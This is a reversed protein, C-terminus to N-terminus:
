THSWSPMSSIGARAFVGQWADVMMNLRAVITHWLPGCAHACVLAHTGVAAAACGCVCAIDRDQGPFLDEGLRLLANTRFKFATLEPLGVRATLWASMLAGDCRRLRAMDSLAAVRLQSAQGAADAEFTAFVAAIHADADLHTMVHQHGAIRLTREAQSCRAWERPDDPTDALENVSPWSQRFSYVTACMSTVMICMSTVVRM